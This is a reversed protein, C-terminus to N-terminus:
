LIFPLKLEEAYSRNTGLSQMLRNDVVSFSKATAAPLMDVFLLNAGAKIASQNGSRGGLGERPDEGPQQATIEADPLLLRILSIERHMIDIRGRPAPSGDPLVALPTGPVPMYPINPSWSIELEKMLLIDDALEDLAQGPYDVINGSGLLLGAEKIWEISRNRKEFTTSPNLREFSDKHSMEFKMVYESLGAAKLEKYQEKSFEGAALSLREFGMARAESVVKLIEEFPYGPDEGSILFLRRLGLSYAQRSLSMIEDPKYRYRCPLKMPARMGCYLCKNKCINSYGLMASASVGGKREKLLEFAPLMIEEEYQRRPMSFADMIEKKNLM